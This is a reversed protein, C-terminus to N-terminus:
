PEERKRLSLQILDAGDEEDPEPDLAISEQVCFVGVRGLLEEVRRRVAEAGFHALLQNLVPYTPSHFLGLLEDKGMGLWAFEEVLCQLMFEPDGQAPTAMLEMPDEQEVPRTTPHVKPVWQEPSPFM